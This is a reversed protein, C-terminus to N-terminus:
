HQLISTPTANMEASLVDVKAGIRAKQFGEVIVRDGSSLGENLLWQNGIAKSVKIVHQEIINDANVLWVLCQGNADRILSQQPLLIANDIVGIELMARVYMGPLLDNDRNPTKIRLTVTDTDQDVIAESFQMVGKDPYHQGNPLVIDVATTGSKLSDAPLSQKLELLALSPQAADIYIPDLQQITALVDLQNATVLSGITVASRGIRGSVPAKIDTYQLNISQTQLAAHASAVDAEAQKLAADSEDAVQRSVARIGLLEQNRKAELKAISLSAEAHALTAKANDVAARYTVPDIKYLLQGSEVMSGEDFLQKQIIGTVQPRVQANVIATVRGPLESTLTLPAAHLVVVSVKPVGTIEPPGGSPAPGCAVLSGAFLAVLSATFVSSSITKM